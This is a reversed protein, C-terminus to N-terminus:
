LAGAHKSLFEPHLSPPLHHWSSFHHSKNLVVSSSAEIDTQQLAGIKKIRLLDGEESKESSNVSQTAKM